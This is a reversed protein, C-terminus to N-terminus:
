RHNKIIKSGATQDVSKGAEGETKKQKKSVGFRFDIEYETQKGKHDPKPRDIKKKGNRRTVRWGRKKKVPCQHHAGNKDRGGIQM